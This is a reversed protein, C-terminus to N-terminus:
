PEAWSEPPTPPASNREKHMATEHEQIARVWRGVYGKLMARREEDWLMDGSFVAADIGECNSELRSM